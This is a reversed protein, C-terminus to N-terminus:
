EGCADGDPRALRGASAHHREQRRPFPFGFEESKVVPQAPLGRCDDTRENVSNKGVEGVRADCCERDSYEKERTEDCEEADLLRRPCLGRLEGARSVSKAVVAM